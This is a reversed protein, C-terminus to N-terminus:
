ESSGGFDGQGAARVTFYEKKTKTTTAKELMATTVGMAILKKKDLTSSVSGRVWYMTRGAATIKDVGADDLLQGLEAKRADVQEQILMLDTALENYQAITTELAQRQEQTLEITTTGELIMDM